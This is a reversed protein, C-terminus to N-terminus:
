GPGSATPMFTSTYKRWSLAGRLQVGDHKCAAMALWIGHTPAVAVSAFGRDRGASRSVFRDYLIGFIRQLRIRKSLIPYPQPNETQRTKKVRVPSWGRILDSPM